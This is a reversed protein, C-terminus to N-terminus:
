AREMLDAGRHRGSPTDDLLRLFAPIVSDPPPRDSIDEGPFAAQQMDTRMDGPDFSLVRLQPEEVALVALLQDFAAKSSGYGGWGAYAQEAADSSIGIVTGGRLAPLLLQIMAFPAFVNVDYVRRIDALPYDRLAPLPSPGLESANSVFLDLARTGVAQRLTERHQQDTVDGPVVVAGPPAAAQLAAGNRADLILDWGRAALAGAISLGLGRSAGTVVALPM